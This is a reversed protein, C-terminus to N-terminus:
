DRRSRRYLYSSAFDHLQRKTRSNPTFGIDVYACWSKGESLLITVFCVIKGSVALHIETSQKQFINIVLLVEYLVQGSSMEGLDRLMDTGYLNNRAYLGIHDGANLETSPVVGEM